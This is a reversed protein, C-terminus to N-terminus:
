PEIGYVLTGNEYVTIQPNYASSTDSSNFSFTNVQPINGYDARHARVQVTGAYDGAGVSGAGSTFGIQLYSDSGPLTPNLRVFTGTVHSCGVVAYDCSFVMPETSGEAFWYRITIDSLPISSSTQNLADLAFQIQTTPDSSNLVQYLQPVPNGLEHQWTTGFSSGGNSLASTTQKTVGQSSVQAMSNAVWAPDSLTGTHGSSDTVSVNSYGVTNYAPLFYVGDLDDGGFADESIVEATSRACGNQGSQCAIDATLSKGLTVDDVVFDFESTSTDYTVSASITDGPNVSFGSTPFNPAMDWWTSYFAQHSSNCFASIGDQEVTGNYVGDLGVWFAAWEDQTQAPDCYATPVTWQASVANFSTTNTGSSNSVFYGDWNESTYSGFPTAGPSRGFAAHRTARHMGSVAGIPAAHQTVGRASSHTSQAVAQAAPTIAVAAGLAVILALFRGLKFRIRVRANRAQRM